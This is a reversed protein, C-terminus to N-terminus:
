SRALFVVKLIIHSRRHKVLAPWQVSGKFEIIQKQQKIKLRNSVSVSSLENSRIRSTPESPPCKYYSYKTLLRGWWPHSTIAHSMVDHGMADRRTWRHKVRARGRRAYSTSMPVLRKTKEKASFCTTRWNRGTKSHQIGRCLIVITM